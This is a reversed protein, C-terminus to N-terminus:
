KGDEMLDMFLMFDWDNKKKACKDCYYKNKIIKYKSNSSIAKGCESCRKKNLIRNNKENKGFLM